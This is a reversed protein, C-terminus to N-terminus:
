VGRQALNMFLGSFIFILIHNGYIFWFAPKASKVKQTEYEVKKSLEQREKLLESKQKAEREYAAKIRAIDEDLEILRQEYAEKRSFIHNMFLGSFIFIVIWFCISKIIM